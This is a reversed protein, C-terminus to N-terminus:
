PNFELEPGTVVGVLIGVEGFRSFGVLFELKGLVFLYALGLGGGFFPGRAFQRSLYFAM